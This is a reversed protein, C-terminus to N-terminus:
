AQRQILHGDRFLAVFDWRELRQEFLDVRGGAHQDGGIRQVALLCAGAEDRLFEAAIIKEAQFAVLAADEILRSPIAWLM